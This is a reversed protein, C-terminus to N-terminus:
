LYKKHSLIFCRVVDTHVPSACACLGPVYHGWATVPVYLGMQTIIHSISRPATVHATKHTGTHPKNQCRNQIGRWNQCLCFQNKKRTYYIGTDKDSMMCGTGYSPSKTCGNGGLKPTPPSTCNKEPYSHHQLQGTCSCATKMSTSSLDQPKYINEAWFM